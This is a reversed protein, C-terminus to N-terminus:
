EALQTTSRSSIMLSVPAPPPVATKGDSRNHLLPLLTQIQLPRLLTGLGRQVTTAEESSTSISDPPPLPQQHSFRLQSRQPPLPPSSSPTLPFVSLETFSDSVEPFWLPDKGHFARM